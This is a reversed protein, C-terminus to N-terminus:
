KLKLYESREMYTKTDAKDVFVIGNLHDVEHQIVRALLGEAELKFTNGKEDFAKVVVSAPREVKGFLGGSVVSGCGEWGSIERRSVSIIKPNIFIRLPDKKITTGKRFKTKRVETVFIRVGKGIQPGAMGVLDHYRMSDVLNKVIQKTSEAKPNSVEKARMRIVPSGVQTTHRLIM